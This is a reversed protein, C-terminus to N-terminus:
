RLGAGACLFKVPTACSAREACRLYQVPPLPNKGLPLGLSCFSFSNKQCFPKTHSPSGQCPKIQSSIAQHVNSPARKKPVEGEGGGPTPPISKTAKILGYYSKAAKLFVLTKKVRRRWPKSAAIGSKCSRVGMQVVRVGRRSPVKGGPRPPVSRCIEASSDSIKKAPSLRPNGPRDAALEISPANSM